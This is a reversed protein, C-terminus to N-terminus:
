KYDDGFKCIVKFPNERRGGVVIKSGSQLWAHASLNDKKDKALGLYLTSLIGRRALMINGAIAQELCKANWPIHRIAVQLGWIIQKVVNSSELGRYKVVQQKQLVLATWRFPIWFVMLRAVVLLCIAEIILIQEFGSIKFFKVLKM